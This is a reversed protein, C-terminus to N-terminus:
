SSWVGNVSFIHEPTTGEDRHEQKSVALLQLLIQEPTILNKVLVSLVLVKWGVLLLM